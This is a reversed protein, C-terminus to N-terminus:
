VELAFSRYREIFGLKNAIEFVRQNNSVAVVKKCNNAQAFKEVTRIDSEWQLDPVSRFSYLSSIYLAKEGTIEDKIIRTIFLAQLERVENSRVFCQAKDCLLFALLNNLYLERDKEAINDANLAAFKITDWFQPIQSPVIKHIM